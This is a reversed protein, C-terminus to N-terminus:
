ITTDNDDEMEAIAQVIVPAPLRLAETFNFVDLGQIVDNVADWGYREVAKTVIEVVTSQLLDLSLYNPKASMLNYTDFCKQCVTSKVCSFDISDCEHWCRGLLEHIRKNTEQETM